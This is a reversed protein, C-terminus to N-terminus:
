PRALIRRIFNTADRHRSFVGRADVPIGARRRLVSTWTFAMAGYSIVVAWATGVMGFYTTGGLLLILGLSAMCLNVMFVEKMKGLAFCFSSGISIAPIFIGSLALIYLVRSSGAYKGAYFLELLFPGALFLGASMLVMLTTFVFFSKQALALKESENKEANLKSVTPILLTTILQLMMEYGRTFVKAANYVALSVPGMVASIILNDSQVFLTYSLSAGLSYKGYVWVSRVAEVSLVPRIGYTGFIIVLGYTTSCVLAVLNIMMVGAATTVTGAPVLVAIAALSGVSYIADLFFLKRLELKSQLIYSAVNRPISAVLLWAVLHMLGGATESNFLAGLSAGFALLLISVPVVFLLYLFASASVPPSLETTEAGFKVLPQLAFSQGMAMALLFITQLLTYVGFELPTFTRIVFLIIGVGYVSPLARGALGWM